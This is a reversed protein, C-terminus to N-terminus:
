KQEERIQSIQEITFGLKKVLTEDDLVDLLNQLVEQRGQEIGQKRATNERTQNDMRERERAEWLLYNREDQSLIELKGYAKGINENKDAIMEFEEQKGASLFYMWNWLQSGDSEAARKSLELVHIMTTDSLQIKNAIDYRVFCHHYVKDQPFLEFDTILISIAQAVKEYGDGSKMQKTLMKGNYWEIRDILFDIPSIQIEVNIVIGTITKIKVDLIGLKDRKHERLLHPDAITITELEKDSIRLVAILFDRLIDVNSEDGFLLKFVVDSKPPLIFKGNTLGKEKMNM